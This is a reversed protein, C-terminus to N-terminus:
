DMRQGCHADHARGEKEQLREVWRQLKENMKKQIQLLTTPRDYGLVILVNSLDAIEELVAEYAAQRRVPTPNTGEYVRRLKLAAHSLESSEEAVLALLESQNLSNRIYEIPDNIM